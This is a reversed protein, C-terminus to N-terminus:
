KKIINPLLDPNVPGNFQVLTHSDPKSMKVMTDDSGNAFRFSFSVQHISDFGDDVLGFSYDINFRSINFGAGLTFNTTDVGANSGARLALPGIGVEAGGAVSLEDSNADYPVDLVLLIPLRGTALNLGFDASIGARYFQPLDEEENAFKLKTQILSGSLGFRYHSLFPVQVGADLTFAEDSYSEALESSLYRVSAGAAVTGIKRGYGVTALLDNQATVSDRRTIGDFLQVEGSDYHGVALGLTGGLTQWGVLGKSFSDETLGQQYHLSAQGGELTALSGPNFELAAIDNTVSTFAEGMASPRAGNTQLLTLGATTGIGDAYTLGGFFFSAMLFFLVTKFNMLKHKMNMKKM